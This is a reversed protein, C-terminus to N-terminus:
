HADASVLPIVNMIFIRAFIRFKELLGFTKTTFASSSLTIHSTTSRLTGISVVFILVLM